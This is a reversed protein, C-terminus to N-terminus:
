AVLFHRPVGTCSSTAPGQQQQIRTKSKAQKKALPDQSSYYKWTVSDSSPRHGLESLIRHIPRPIAALMVLIVRGIRRRYMLSMCCQQESVRTRSFGSFDFTLVEEVREVSLGCTTEHDPVATIQVGFRWGPVPLSLEDSSDTFSSKSM